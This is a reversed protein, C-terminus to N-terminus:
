LSKKNILLKDYDIFHFVNEKTTQYLMGDGVWVKNQNLRQMMKAEGILAEKEVDWLNRECTVEMLSEGINNSVEIIYAIIHSIDVWFRREL